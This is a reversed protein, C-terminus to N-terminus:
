RLRTGNRERKEYEPKRRLIKNLERAMSEATEDVDENLGEAYETMDIEEENEVQKRLTERRAKPIRQLPGSTFLGPQQGQIVFEKEERPELIQEGIRHLEEVRHNAGEHLEGNEDMWYTNQGDTMWYIKSAENRAATVDGTIATIEIDGKYHIRGDIDAKVEGPLVTEIKEAEMEPISNLQSYLEEGSEVPAQSIIQNTDM